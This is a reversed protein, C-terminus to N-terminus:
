IHILSLYVICPGILYIKNPATGYCIKEEIGHIYRPDKEREAVLEDWKQEDIEGGYVQQMQKITLGTGWGPKEPRIQALCRYIQHRM